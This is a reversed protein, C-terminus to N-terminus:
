KIFKNFDASKRSVCDYLYVLLEALSNKSNKSMDILKNLIKYKNAFLQQRYMVLVNDYEISNEYVDDLLKKV